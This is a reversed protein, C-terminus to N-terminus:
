DRVVNGNEDAHWGKAISIKGTDPNFDIGTGPGEFNAANGAIGGPKFMGALKKELEPFDKVNVVNNAM